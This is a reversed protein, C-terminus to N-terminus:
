REAQAPDPGLMDNGRRYRGDLLWGLRAGVETALGHRVPVVGSMIAGGSSGGGGGHDGGGDERTAAAKAGVSRALAATETNTREAHLFEALRRQSPCCCDCSYCCTCTPSPLLPPPPTLSPSLLSPSLSPPPPSPSLSPPLLLPLSLSDSLRIFRLAATGPPLPPQSLDLSYIGPTVEKWRRGLVEGQGEGEGAGDVAERGPAASSQVPVTAGGAAM